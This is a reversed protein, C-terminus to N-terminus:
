EIDSSLRGAILEAETDTIEEGADHILAAQTYIVRDRVSVEAEPLVEVDGDVLVLVPQEDGSKALARIDDATITTM